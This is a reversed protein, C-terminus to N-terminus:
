QFLDSIIANSLLLGTRTLRLTHDDWEVQGDRAYAQLVEGEQEWLDFGFRNQFTEREIGRTRRLQTLLYENVEETPSLQEVEETPIAGSQVERLYRANNAVNWSRQGPLYSHASPGLGLYPIGEWYASNHRSHFGPRAFNSLKYHQLGAAALADILHFYQAAYAEDSSVRVQGTEVQHALATKEEVTLAYASVHPVELDVLAQVNAAWDAESLGPIGYILDVTLNDFGAAQAAEISQRAQSANHSRGMLQLDRERFSQVGISLRNVGM